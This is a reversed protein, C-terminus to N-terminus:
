WQKALYHTVTFHNYPPRAPVQRGHGIKIDENPPPPPLFRQFLGTMVAPMTQLHVM